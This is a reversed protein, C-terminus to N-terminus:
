AILQGAQLCFFGGPSLDHYFCQSLIQIHLTYVGFNINHVHWFRPTRSVNQREFCYWVPLVAPHFGRQRSLEGALFFLILYVKVLYCLLKCTCTSWPMQPQLKLNLKRVHLEHLGRGEASAVSPPPRAYGAAPPVLEM